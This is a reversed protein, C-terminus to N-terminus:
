VWSADGPEQHFCISTAEVTERVLPVTIVIPVRGEGIVQPFVQAHLSSSTM